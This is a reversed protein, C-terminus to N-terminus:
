HIKERKRTNEEEPFLRLNPHSREVNTYMFPNRKIRKVRHQVLNVFITTGCQGCFPEMFHARTELCQRLPDKGEKECERARPVSEPQPAVEGCKCVHFSWTKTWKVETTCSGCTYQLGKNWIDLNNLHITMISWVCGFAQNPIQKRLGFIPFKGQQYWSSTDQLVFCVIPIQNTLALKSDLHEVLIFGWEPSQGESGRGGEWTWDNMHMTCLKHRNKAGETGGAAVRFRVSSARAFTKSSGGNKHPGKGKM